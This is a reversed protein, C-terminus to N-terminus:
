PLTDEFTEHQEGDLEFECLDRRQGRAAIRLLINNGPGLQHALWGVCAVEKGLVTEHCAMLRLTGGLTLVGPEAITRILAAHGEESYGDPIDHPDTSKKWPCKDCQRRAM